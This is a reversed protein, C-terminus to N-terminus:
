FTSKGSNKMFFLARLGWFRPFHGPERLFHGGSGGFGPGLGGFGPEPGGLHGEPGWFISKKGSKAVEAGLKWTTRGDRSGLEWTACVDRTGTALNRLCRCVDRTGTALNRLCRSSMQMWVGLREAMKKGYIELRIHQELNRRIAM